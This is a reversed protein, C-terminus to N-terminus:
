IAQVLQNNHSSIENSKAWKWDNAECMISIQFFNEAFYLKKQRDFLWSTQVFNSVNLLNTHIFVGQIVSQFPKIIIITSKHICEVWIVKDTVYSKM